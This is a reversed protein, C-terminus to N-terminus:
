NDGRSQRLNETTKRMEPLFNKRFKILRKYNAQRQKLLYLLEPKNIDGTILEDEFDVTETRKGKSKKKVKKVQRVETDQATVSVSTIAFIFIVLFSKMIM